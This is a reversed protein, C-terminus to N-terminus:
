FGKNKEWTFSFKPIILSINSFYIDNDSSPEKRVKRGDGVVLKLQGSSSLLEEKGDRKINEVSMDVLGQIHDLCTIIVFIYLM